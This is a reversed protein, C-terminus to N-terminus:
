RLHEAGSPLDVSLDSLTFRYFPLVFEYIGFMETSNIAKM